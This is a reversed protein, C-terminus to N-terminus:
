IKDPQGSKLGRLDCKYIKKFRIKVKEMTMDGRNSPFSAAVIRARKEKNASHALMKNQLTSELQEIAHHLDKGKM